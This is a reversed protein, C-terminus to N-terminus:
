EYNEYSSCFTEEFIKKYKYDLEKTLENFKKCCLSINTLDEQTCFDFILKYLNDNLQYNNEIIMNFEGFYSTKLNLM